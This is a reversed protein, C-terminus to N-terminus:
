EMLLDKLELFHERMVQRGTEADKEHFAELIPVHRKVLEVRNSRNRYGGFYAWHAISVSEWAQQLINNRCAYVIKKHFDIDLSIEKELEGSEAAKLMKEYTKELTVLDKKNINKIALYTALGELEARVEYSDKVDNISFERISAGKYPETKLLGMLELDRFAERVPAQSIGLDKAIRTEVLRENPKYEGRMIRSTLYNKVEERFVQKKFIPKQVVNEVEDSYQNNYQM